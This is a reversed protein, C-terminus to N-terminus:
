LSPGFMYPQPKQPDFECQDAQFDFQQEPLTQTVLGSVFNSMEDALRQEEVETELEHRKEALYIIIDAEGVLDM